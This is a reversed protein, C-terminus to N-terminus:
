VTLSTVLTDLAIDGEIQGTKIAEDIELLRRYIEELAEQSYNRAQPILKRVVFPFTKLEKAIDNERYGSDILERTMLLLRFQRIVMGFLRLPEDVELLRHLMRLAQQGNRSGLADVMAFIDGGGVSAVLHEVDDPEISRSYNVYALLKAIEQDAIRPDDDVFSALLAAADPSIEGGQKRAQEQIWRILDTGRALLLEKEYARGAQEQAWKQLWHKKGSRKDRSSVLPRNIAVVLATTAPIEELLKKFRDRVTASQMTGLPDHLVVLRRESLFPMAKVTSTLEDLPLTGAKFHTINMGATSPDGLRSEMTTIFQAIAYEDDGHLIYVVPKESM